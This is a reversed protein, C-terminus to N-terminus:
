LLIWSPPCLRLRATEVGRLWYKPAIVQKRPSTSLFAAWWSYSSNSIVFHQCRSMRALDIWAPRSADGTIYKVDGDLALHKRAWEPEDSFVLAQCDGVDRRLRAWAERYWSADCVLHHNRAIPDNVYDGRRVHIATLPRAPDAHVAHGAPLEPFRFTQRVKDEQDSFYAPGQWYGSIVRPVRSVKMAPSFAADEVLLRPWGPLGIRHLHQTAWVMAMFRLRVAAGAATPEIGFCSLEWQRGVRALGALDIFALDAGFKAALAVGHAVQFMQNGLGGRVLVVISEEM